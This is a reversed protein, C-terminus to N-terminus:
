RSWRAPGSRGRACRLVGLALLGIAILLDGGDGRRTASCVTGAGAPRACDAEDTQGDCDDDVGNACLEPGPSLPTAACVVPATKDKDDCATKGQVQCAGLGVTCVQGVAFAEDTQGDCDDDVGNGCTETGAPLAKASCIVSAGGPSCITKGDAKCAGKGSTCAAGIGLGEDTQGDCDNDLGDCLTETGAQYLGVPYPCVEGQAGGCVPKTEACVGAVACTMSPVFEEDTVGDCDDDVGNCSETPAPGCKGCANLLGEDTAGDCDNDLGDCLSENLPERTPPYQCVFGAVDMCVPGGQSCVGKTLCEILPPVLPAEDTAGDCDDDIGNCKEPAGPHRPFGSGPTNDCDQPPLYGDGDWDCPPNAAGPSGLGLAGLNGSAACWSEKGKDNGAATEFEPALSQAAGPVSPWQGPGCLVYTMADVLGEASNVSLTAGCTPLDFEDGADIDLFTPTLGLPLAHGIVWRVGAGLVKADTTVAFVLPAAGDDTSVVLTLGDLPVADPGPNYLEVWRPAGLPPDVMIESIVLAGVQPGLAQGQSPAAWLGLSATVALALRLATCTLPHHRISSRM